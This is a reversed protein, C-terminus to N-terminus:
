RRTGEAPTILGTTHGHDIAQNLDDDKIATKPKGEAGRITAVFSFRKRLKTIPKEIVNWSFLAFLLIAPLAMFFQTIPGGVSPFLYIM